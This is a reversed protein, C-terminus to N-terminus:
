ESLCKTFEVNQKLISPTQYEFDSFMAQLYFQVSGLNNRNYMTGFLIYIEKLYRPTDLYEDTLLM